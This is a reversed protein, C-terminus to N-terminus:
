KDPCPLSGESSTHIADANSVALYLKKLQIEDQSECEIQSIDDIFLLSHGDTQGDCNIQQIVCTEDRVQEVFGVIDDYGSDLLEISVIEKSDKAFSLLSKMFADDRLALERSPLQNLKIKEKMEQTYQDDWDVRYISSTRKILLGDYQGEPSLMYLAIHKDNVGLVRGFIFSSIKDKNTYFCAYQKQGSLQNLLQLM